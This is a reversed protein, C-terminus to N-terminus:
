GRDFAVCSHVVVPDNVRLFLKQLGENELAALVYQFVASFVGVSNARFREFIKFNRQLVRTASTVSM